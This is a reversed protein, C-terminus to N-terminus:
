YSSLSGLFSFLSSPYGSPSCFQLFPPPLETNQFFPFDQASLQLFPSASVASLASPLFAELFTEEGELGPPTPSSPYLSIFKITFSLPCFILMKPSTRQPASALTDTSRIHVASLISHPCVVRPTPFLQQSTVLASGGLLGSLGASGPFCLTYPSRDM